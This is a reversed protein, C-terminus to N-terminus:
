MMLYINTMIIDMNIMVLFWKNCGKLFNGIDPMTRQDESLADIRPM